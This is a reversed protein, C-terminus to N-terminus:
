RMASAPVVWDVIVDDASFAEVRVVPESCGDPVGLILVGESFSGSPLDGYLEFTSDAYWSGDNGDLCMVHAEPNTTDDSTRNETRITVAIRYADDTGNDDVATDFEIASVVVSLPGLDYSEGLAGDVSEERTRAEGVEGAPLLDGTVPPGDTTTGDEGGCDTSRWMGDEYVYATYDGEDGVPNGSADLLAVSAEGMTATVNRVKVEGVSLDSLEVEFFSQLMGVAFLMQGAWESRTVEKRCEASLMGYTSAPNEIFATAWGAVAARLGEETAPQTVGAGGGGCSSMVLVLVLPFSGRMIRM